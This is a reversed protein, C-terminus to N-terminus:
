EKVKAIKEPDAEIGHSSVIHGVYKVRKQLFYCKKPSSKLNCSGLRDFVKELRDLHEEFTDSFVILDDLYIFCITTNLEGLCNEMVRQYTASSNVLCFALRNFEWFGLCGVTFATRPKHSEEIEIQHYGSKMDLVSFYKAGGLSDLIEEIRPLAYSDKVTRKNLQCFDVCMRLKKDRKRVLVINSAFPSHSPRIIGPRLLEQLHNRVEALM